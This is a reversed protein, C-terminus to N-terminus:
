MTDMARARLEEWARVIAAGLDLAISRLRAEDVGHTEHGARRHAERLRHGLTAALSPLERPRQRLVLALDLKFEGPVYRRVLYSRGDAGHLAQSGPLNKGRLAVEATLVRLAEPLPSSTERPARALGATIM